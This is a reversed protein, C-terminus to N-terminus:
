DLRERLECPVVYHSISSHYETLRTGGGQRILNVLKVVQTETFAPSLFIQTRDLFMNQNSKGEVGTQNTNTTGNEEVPYLLEDM